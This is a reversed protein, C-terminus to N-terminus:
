RGVSYNLHTVTESQTTDALQIKVTSPNLNDLLRVGKGLVVPAVHISFEDVLGANLYQQIIAAGGGIRVDKNGAAEKAQALGSAIGDNVFYFTTGGEREWPERKEQTLVFVPAHFPANVPWNAEGEKFMNKGMIYAGTRQASKRIITDDDNTIGGQLGVLERWSKLKYMWQHITTGGDGLPNQPSGHLGAIFGDLSMGVQFFVKSM